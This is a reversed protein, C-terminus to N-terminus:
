WSVLECLLGEFVITSLMEFSEYVLWWSGELGLLGLLDIRGDMIDLVKWIHFHSYIFVGGLSWALELHLDM